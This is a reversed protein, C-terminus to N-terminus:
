GSYLSPWSSEPGRAARRSRRGCSRTAPYLSPARVRVVGLVLGGIVILFFAVLLALAAIEPLEWAFRPSSREDAPTETEDADIDDPM